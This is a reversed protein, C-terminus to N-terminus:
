LSRFPPCSSVGDRGREGNRSVRPAPPSVRGPPAGLLSTSTASHDGPRASHAIVPTARCASPPAGPTDRSFTTWMHRYHASRRFCSPIVPQGWTKWLSTRVHARTTASGDGLPGCARACTPKTGGSGGSLRGEPHSTEVRGGTGSGRSI